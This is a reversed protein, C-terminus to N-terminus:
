DRLRHARTNRSTKRSISKREKSVGKEFNISSDTESLCLSPCYIRGLKSHLMCQIWYTHGPSAKPFYEKVTAFVVALCCCGYKGLVVGKQFRSVGPDLLVKFSSFTLLMDKMGSSTKIPGLEDAAFAASPIILPVLLLFPIVPLNLERVHLIKEPNEECDKRYEEVDIYFDIFDNIANKINTLKPFFEQSKTVSSNKNSM